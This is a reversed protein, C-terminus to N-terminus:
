AIIRLDLIITNLELGCDPREVRMSNLMAGM